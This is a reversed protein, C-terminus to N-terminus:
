VTFGYRLPQGKTHSFPMGHDSTIAVITNGLQDAEELRWIPQDTLIITRQHAAPPHMM